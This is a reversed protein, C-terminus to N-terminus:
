LASSAEQAAKRSWFFFHLKKNFHSWSQWAAGVVALAALFKEPAQYRCLDICQVHAASSSLHIHIDDRSRHPYYCWYWFIRSTLCFQGFPLLFFQAAIKCWKHAFTKFRLGSRKM